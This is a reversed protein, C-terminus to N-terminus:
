EVLGGWKEAGMGGVSLHVGKICNILHNAAPPVCNLLHDM